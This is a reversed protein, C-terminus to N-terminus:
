LNTKPKESYNTFLCHRKGEKEWRGKKKNRSRSLQNYDCQISVTTNYIKGGGRKESLLM